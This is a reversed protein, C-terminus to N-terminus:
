VEVETEIVLTLHNGELTACVLLDYVLHVRLEVGFSITRLLTKLYKPISTLVLCFRQIRGHLFPIAV